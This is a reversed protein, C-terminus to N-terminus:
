RKRGREKSGGSADGPPEIQEWQGAPMDSFREWARGQKDLAVLHSRGTKGGAGDLVDAVAVQVFRIKKAMRDGEATVSRVGITIVQAVSNAWMHAQQYADPMALLGFGAFGPSTRFCRPTLNESASHASSSAAASRSARGDADDNMRRAANSAARRSADLPPRQSCRSAGTM